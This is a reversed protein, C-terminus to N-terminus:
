KRRAGAWRRSRARVAGGRRRRARGAGERQWVSVPWCGLVGARLLGRAHGKRMGCVEALEAGTGGNHEQRGGALGATGQGRETM